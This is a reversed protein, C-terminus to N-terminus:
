GWFVGAAQAARRNTKNVHTEYQKDHNSTVVRAPRTPRVIVCFASTSHCVTCLVDGYDDLQEPWLEGRAVNNLLWM